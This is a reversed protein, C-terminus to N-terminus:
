NTTTFLYSSIILIDLYRSVMLSLIEIKSLNNIKPEFLFILIKYPGELNILCHTTQYTSRLSANMELQEQLPYTTITFNTFGQEVFSDSIWQSSTQFINIMRISYLRPQYWNHGYSKSKAQVYYIWLWMFHTHLRLCKTNQMVYNQSHDFITYFM